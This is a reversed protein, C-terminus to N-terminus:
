LMVYRYRIMFLIAFFGGGLLLGLLFAAVSKDLLSVEQLQEKEGIVYQNEDYIKVWVHHTDPLHNFVFITIFVTFIATLFYVREMTKVLRTLIKM